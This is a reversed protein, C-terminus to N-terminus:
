WIIVGQRYNFVKITLGLYKSLMLLYKIWNTNKDKVGYMLIDDVINCAEESKFNENKNMIFIKGHNGVTVTQQFQDTNLFQKFDQIQFGQNNPHNHVKILSMAPMKLLETYQKHNMGVRGIDGLITINYKESNKYGGAEFVVEVECYKGSTHVTAGNFNCEIFDDRSQQIKLVDICAQQIEKNISQKTYIEIDEVIQIDINMIGPMGDRTDPRWWELLTDLVEQETMKQQDILERSM